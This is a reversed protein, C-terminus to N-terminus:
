IFYQSLLQTYFISLCVSILNGILYFDNSIREDDKIRTAIKLAAFLTLAQPLSSILAYVLFAREAWGKLLGRWSLRSQQVAGERRENWKAMLYFAFTAGAECLVIIGIDLM